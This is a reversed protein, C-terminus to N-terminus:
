GGIYWGGTATTSTSIRTTPPLPLTITSATTTTSTSTTATTIAVTAAATATATIGTTIEPMRHTSEIGFRVKMKKFTFGTDRFVYQPVKAIDM